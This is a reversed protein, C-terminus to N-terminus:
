RRRRFWSTPWRMFARWLSRAGRGSRQVTRVTRRWGDRVINQTKRALWSAEAARKMGRLHRNERLSAALVSRALEGTEYLTSNGVGIRQRTEESCRMARDLAAAADCRARERATLAAEQADVGDVYHQLSAKM